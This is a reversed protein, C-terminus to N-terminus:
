SSGHHLLPRFKSMHLIGDFGALPFAGSLLGICWQIGPSSYGSIGTFTTDFVFHSTSYTPTTAVLVAIFAIFLGIHLAGGVLELPQLVRRAFINCFLPIPLIAYSFLTGHWRQPIYTDNNLIILGQIITGELFTVQTCVAM